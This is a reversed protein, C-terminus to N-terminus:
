KINPTRKHPKGSNNNLSNRNLPPPNFRLSQLFQNGRNNSWHPHANQTNQQFIKAFRYMYKNAKDKNKPIIIIKGNKRLIYM